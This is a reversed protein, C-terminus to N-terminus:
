QLSFLSTPNNPISPVYIQWQASLLITRQIYFKPAFLNSELISIESARRPGRNAEIIMRSFVFPSLFVTEKAKLWLTAKKPQKM